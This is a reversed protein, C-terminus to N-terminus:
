KYIDLLDYMVGMRPKLYYKNYLEEDTQKLKKFNVEAGNDLLLKIIEINKDEIVWDIPYRGNNDPINVDAGAKLLPKFMEERNYLIASYIPTWGNNELINVDAGVKLLLKFIDIENWSIAKHLPSWGGVRIDIDGEEDIYKQVEEIDGDEIAQFVDIKSSM